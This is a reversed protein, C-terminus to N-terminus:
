KRRLRRVTSQAKEMAVGLYHFEIVLWIRCVPANGLNLGRKFVWKNLTLNVYATENQQQKCKTTQLRISAELYTM